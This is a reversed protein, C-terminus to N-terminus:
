TELVNGNLFSAKALRMCKVELARERQQDRECKVFQMTQRVFECKCKYIYTYLLASTKMVVFLLLLQKLM